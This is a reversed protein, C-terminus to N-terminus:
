FLLFTLGAFMVMLVVTVVTIVFVVVPRQAEPEEFETLEVRSGRPVLSRSADSQAEEGFVPRPTLAAHKFISGARLAQIMDEFVLDREAPSMERIEDIARTLRDVTIRQKSPGFHAGGSQNLRMLAAPLLHTLGTSETVLRSGNEDIDLLGRRFLEMVFRLRTRLDDLALRTENDLELGQGALISHVLAGQAHAESASNWLLGDAHFFAVGRAPKEPTIQYGITGTYRWDGSSFVGLGLRTEEAHLGWHASGHVLIRRGNRSVGYNLIADIGGVRPSGVYGLPATADVDYFVLYSRSENPPYQEVVLTRSDAMWKMSHLGSAERTWVTPGDGLYTDAVRRVVLQNGRYLAELRGDPSFAVRRADVYRSSGDRGFILLGEYTTVVMGVSDPTFGVDEVKLNETDLGPKLDKTDAGVENFRLTQVVTGTRDILRISDQEFTSWVAALQGGPDPRVELDFSDFDGEFVSTPVSLPQSFGASLDYFLVRSGARDLVVLTTDQSFGSFSEDQLDLEFLKFDSLRVLDCRVPGHAVAWRGGPDFSARIVPMENSIQQPTFPECRDLRDRAEYWVQVDRADTHAVAELSGGPTSDALLARIEGASQARDDPNPETMRKLARKLRAGIRGTGCAADVDIRNGLYDLAEPEQGTLCTLATMGLGYLDSSANARGVFQEPAAYGFTGATTSGSDSLAARVAGFDILHARGSRDLIINSPKIDRHIVPPVRTHLYDLVDLIDLVIELVWAEDFRAQDPILADLTQGDVFAQVIFLPEDLEQTSESVPGHDIYSPIRPHSLTQLVEAERHFLDVSKWDPVRHMQLYKVVVPTDDSERVAHYTTGFGGEGLLEGILYSGASGKQITGIM